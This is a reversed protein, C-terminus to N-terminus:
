IIISFLMLLVALVILIWGLCYQGAFREQKKDPVVDLVQRPASSFYRKDQIFGVGGLLMLFLGIMLVLALIITLVM